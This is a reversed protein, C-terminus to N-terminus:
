ARCRGQDMDVRVERAGADISNEVLEKVVSAPREVVEGAAVQSALIDPLVRIKPVRPLTHASLQLLTGLSLFAVSGVKGSKASPEEREAVIRGGAGM